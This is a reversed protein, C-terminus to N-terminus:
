MMSKLIQVALKVTAPDADIALKTACTTSIEKAVTEVNGAALKGKAFSEKAEDMLCARMKVDANDAVDSISFASANTTILMAVALM